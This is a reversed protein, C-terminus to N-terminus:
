NINLKMSKRKFKDFSGEIVEMYVTGTIPDSLTERFINRDIKLTEGLSLNYINTITQEKDYTRIKLTGKLVTFTIWGPLDDSIPPYVKGPIAAIIMLQVKQSGLNHLCIRSIGGEENSAKEQLKILDYNDIKM